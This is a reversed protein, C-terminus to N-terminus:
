GSVYRQFATRRELATDGPFTTSYFAELADLQNGTPAQQVTQPFFVGADEPLAGLDSQGGPFEKHLPKWDTTDISNAKRISANVQRWHLVDVRGELATLRQTLRQEMQQMQTQLEQQGQQIQQMQELMQQQGQLMQQQMQTLQALDPALIQAVVQQM